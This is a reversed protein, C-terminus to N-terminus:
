PIDVVCCCSGCRHLLIPRLCKFVCTFRKRVSVLAVLVKAIMTPRKMIQQSGNKVMYTIRANQWSQMSGSKNEISNQSPYQLEATLGIIYASKELSKREANLTIM